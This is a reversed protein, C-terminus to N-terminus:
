LEELIGADHCKPCRRFSFRTPQVIRLRLFGLVDLSLDWSLGLLLPLTCPPSAHHHVPPRGFMCVLLPPGVMRFDSFKFHSRIDRRRDQLFIADQCGFGRSEAAVLGCVVVGWSSSASLRLGSGLLGM